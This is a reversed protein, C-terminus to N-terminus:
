QQRRLVRLLQRGEDSLEDDPTIVANELSRECGCNWHQCNDDAFVSKLGAKFIRVAQEVLGPLASDVVDQTVEAGTQADMDTPLALCSYHMQAERALRAEHDFSMGVLDFGAQKWVRNTARTGFQPGVITVYEADRNLRISEKSAERILLKDQCVCTPDALSVHVAPGERFFSTGRGTVDHSQSILSPVGVEAQVEEIVGCASTAWLHTVRQQAMAMMNREWNIGSPPVRHGRGHRSGIVIQGGGTLTVVTLEVRQHDSSGERAPRRPVQKLESVELGISDLTASIRGYSFVEGAGSGTGMFIGVVPKQQQGM